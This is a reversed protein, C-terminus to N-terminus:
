QAELLPELLEKNRVIEIMAVEFSGSELSSNFQKQTLNNFFLVAVHNENDSKPALYMADTLVGALAGNKTGFTEFYEDSGEIEMPWELKERMVRSVEPSVFTESVVGAMVKAYDAASGKTFGQGAEVQEKYTGYSPFTALWAIEAERWASDNLYLTQSEPAAIRLEDYSLAKTTTDTHNQQSLYTGLISLPVDHAELNNEDIVRQLADEGVLDILYDTAANDSNTIMAAAIDDLSVAQESTAFGLEDTEIGLAELAAPHASGDTYPLYYAEWESTSIETEPDLNGEVVEQAYAALVIIKMTSALPLAADANYSFDENLSGDANATGVVLSISDSRSNIENELFTLVAESTDLVDPTSQAFARFIFLIIFLVALISSLSPKSVDTSNFLTKLKRM